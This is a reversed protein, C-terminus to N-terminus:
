KLAVFATMEKHVRHTRSCNEGMKEWKTPLM